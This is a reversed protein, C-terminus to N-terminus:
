CATIRRKKQHLYVRPSVNFYDCLGVYLENACEQRYADSKMLEAERHVDMFGCEVLAAPMHSERLVHFNATKLGRDYMKTGKILQKHLCAAIKRGTSSGPYSFTEIGGIHDSWTFGMANYHVSVYVDAGWSNARNTRTTLPVDSDGAAVEYVSFRGDDKLLKALKQM